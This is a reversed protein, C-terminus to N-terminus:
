LTKEPTPPPSTPTESPPPTTPTESPTPSPTPTPTPTPPLPFPVGVTPWLPYTPIVPPVTYPSPTAEITVQTRVMPHDTVRKVARSFDRVYGSFTARGKAGFIWDVPMVKPTKCVGARNRGGNAAKMPAGAVFPCFYKERENMDGTFFVPLRTERVLSNALAIQRNMAELRNKRNGRHRKNTAPNHFNAFFATVGTSNNRLLVVPMMWEEGKFYPIQVTYGAVLSWDTTRWAITNQVTKRNVGGPYVSYRDGAVRMFEAWQDIQFEQLGVVDVSHTDLLTAVKRIRVVGPGMKKRRGSKTHTSGLVNFSSLTFTTPVSARALRPVGDTALTTAGAPVWALSIATALATLVAACTLALKSRKVRRVDAPVVASKLSRLSKHSVLTLHAVGYRVFKERSGITVNREFPM